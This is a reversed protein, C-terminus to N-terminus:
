RRGAARAGWRPVRVEIAGRLPASAEFGMFRTRARAAVSYVLLREGAVRESGETESVLEHHVTLDDLEVQQESAIRLVTDRVEDDTPDARAVALQREMGGAVAQFRGRTEFGFRFYALVGVMILGFVAAGLRRRYQWPTLFLLELM